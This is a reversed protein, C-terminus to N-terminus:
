CEEGFRDTRVDGVPGGFHTVSSGDKFNTVRVPSGGDGMSEFTDEYDDEDYDDLSRNCMPEQSPYM